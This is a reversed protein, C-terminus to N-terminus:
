MTAGIHPGSARGQVLKLPDAGLGIAKIHLVGECVLLIRTKATRSPPRRRLDVERRRKGMLSSRADLRELCAGGPLPHRRVPQFLAVIERALAPHLSGELEDVLFVGGVALVKFLRLGLHLLTLTGDSETELPLPRLETSALRHFLRVTRTSTDEPSARDPGSGIGQIGVDASQMLTVIQNLEQWEATLRPALM